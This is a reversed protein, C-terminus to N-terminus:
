FQVPKFPGYLDAELFIYNCEGGESADPYAYGGAPIIADTEYDPLGDSWNDPNSWNDDYVADWFTYGQSHAPYSIFLLATTIALILTRYIM